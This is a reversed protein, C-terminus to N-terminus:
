EFPNKKVPIWFKDYDAKLFETMEVAALPKSFYYGQIIDCGHKRLFDFQEKTEVGEAIVKQKLSHGIEIIACAIRANKSDVTMGKVFSQDMKLVDIPFNKLYSLSSYGTGFDDLALKIGMRQVQQLQLDIFRADGILMSETIELELHEAALGSETLARQVLPLFNPDTFQQASVNVSVQQLPYGADLWKKLQHCATHLIWYGIEIILGTDEALSIFQDPPIMKENNQFWRILVEAGCLKRTHAEYQPQYYLKLENKSIAKRLNLEMLLKDQSLSNYDKNYFQYNNKGQNKANNRAIDAYKLLVEAKLMLETTRCDEPYISIGISSGIFAEHNNVYIVESLKQGIKGAVISAAYVTQEYTQESPMLIAFEDGSLRAAIDNPGILDQLRRAVVKLLENGADHGLSENIIKFRDLDVVFVTGHVNGVKVSSIFKRLRDYFMLRNILGTLEDYYSLKIIRKEAQKQQTIDLLSGFYVVSNDNKTIASIELKVPFDRGSKPLCRLESSWLRKPHHTFFDTQLHTMKGKVIFSLPKGKLDTSPYETLLACAANVDTILFDKDLFIFSLHCSEFAKPLLELQDKKRDDVNIFFGTVILKLENEHSDFIPIRTLELTKRQKDIVVIRTEKVPQKLHWASKDQIFSVKLIDANSNSYHFLEADTKGLYDVEQLNFIKLYIESAGLWYGNNDKICLFNPFHNVLIQTNIQFSDKSINAPSYADNNDQDFVDNKRQNYYIILLIIMFVSNAILLINEHHIRMFFENSLLHLLNTTAVLLPIVILLKSKM